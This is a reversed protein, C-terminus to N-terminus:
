AFASLFSKVANLQEPTLNQLKTVVDLLSADVRLRLVIDAITDNKTKIADIEDYGSLYDVTTSFFDALNVVVSYMPEQTGKEYRCLSGKNMKGNYKENYLEALRDMTLGNKERLFRLREGFM